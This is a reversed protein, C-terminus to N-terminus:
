GRRLSYRAALTTGGLAGSGPHVGPEGACRTYSFPETWDFLRKPSNCLNSSEPLDISRRRTACKDQQASCPACRLLRPGYLGSAGAFAVYLGSAGAFAATPAKAPAEPKHGAM